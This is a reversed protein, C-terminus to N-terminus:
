NLFPFNAFALEINSRIPMQWNRYILKEAFSALIWPDIGNEIVTPQPMMPTADGTPLCRHGYPLWRVISSLFPCAPVSHRSTRPSDEVIRGEELIACVWTPKCRAGYASSGSYSIQVGACDLWDEIWKLASPASVTLSRMASINSSM